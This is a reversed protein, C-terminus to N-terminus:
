TDFRSALSPMSRRVCAATNAVRRSWCGLGGPAPRQRDARRVTPRRGSTSGRRPRRPHSPRRRGPVGRRRAGPVVARDLSGSSAGRRPVGPRGAVPVVPADIGGVSPGGRPVGDLRAGRLVAISRERSLARRTSYWGTHQPVLERIRRVDDGDLGIAVRLAYPRLDRVDVHAHHVKAGAPLAGARPSQACWM